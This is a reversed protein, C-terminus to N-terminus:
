MKHRHRSPDGGGRDSLDDDDEEDSDNLIDDEDSVSGGISMTGEARVHGGIGASEDSGGVSIPPDSDDSASPESSADDDDGGDMAGDVDAIAGSPPMWRKQAGNIKKAKRDKSKDDEEGRLLRWEEDRLRKQMKKLARDNEEM